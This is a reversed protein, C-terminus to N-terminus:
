FRQCNWLRDCKFDQSIGARTLTPITSDFTEAHLAFCGAKAPSDLKQIGLRWVLQCQKLGRLNQRGPGRCGPTQTGMSTSKLWVPEVTGNISQDFWYKTCYISRTKNRRKPRPRKAFGLRRVLTPGQHGYWMTMTVSYLNPIVWSVLGLSGITTGQCSQPSTRFGPWGMGPHRWTEWVAVTVYLVAM